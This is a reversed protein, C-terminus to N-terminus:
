LSQNKWLIYCKFDKSSQGTMRISISWKLHVIGRGQKWHVRPQQCKKKLRPKLGSLALVGRSSICLLRVSFQDAALTFEKLVQKQLALNSGKICLQRLWQDNRQCKTSHLTPKSKASKLFYNFSCEKVTEWSFSMTIEKTMVLAISKPQLLRSSVALYCFFICFFRM